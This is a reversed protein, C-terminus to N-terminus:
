LRETRVHFVRSLRSLRSTRALRAQRFTGLRVDGPVPDPQGGIYIGDIGNNVISREGVALIVKYIRWINPYNRVCIGSAQSKTPQNRQHNLVHLFLCFTRYGVNDLAYV